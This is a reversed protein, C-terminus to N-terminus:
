LALGRSDLWGAPDREAFEKEHGFETRFRPLRQDHLCLEDGGFMGCSATEALKARHNGAADEFAAQAAAVIRKTIPALKKSEAALAIALAEGILRSTISAQDLRVKAAHLADANEKSPEAALKEYAIDVQDHLWSRSNYIAINDGQAEVILQNIDELAKRTTTIAKIEAPTFKVAELFSDVRLAAPPPTPHSIEM